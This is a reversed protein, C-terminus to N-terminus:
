LKKVILKLGSHKLIKLATENMQIFKIVVIFIFEHIFIEIKYVNIKNYSRKLLLLFFKKEVM